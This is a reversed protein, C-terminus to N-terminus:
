RLGKQRELLDVANASRQQILDKLRRWRQRDGHKSFEREAERIRLEHAIDQPSLM